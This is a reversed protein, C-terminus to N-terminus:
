LCNLKLVSFVGLRPVLTRVVQELNSSVVKRDYTRRGVALGDPWGVIKRNKAINRRPGDVPVDFAPPHAFIAIRLWYIAEDRAALAAVPWTNDVTALYSM